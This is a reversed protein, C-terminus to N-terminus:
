TRATLPWSLRCTPCTAVAPRRITSPDPMLDIVIEDAVRVVSHCEVDEDAVENVWRIKQL